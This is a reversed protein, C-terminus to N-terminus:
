NLHSRWLNGLIPIIAAEKQRALARVHGAIPPRLPMQQWVDVPM